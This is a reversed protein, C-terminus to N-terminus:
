PSINAPTKNTLLSPLILPIFAKLQFVVIPKIFKLVPKNQTRTKHQIM